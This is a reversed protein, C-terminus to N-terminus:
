YLDPGSLNIVDTLKGIPKLISEKSLAELPGSLLRIPEDYGELTFEVISYRPTGEPNNGPRVVVDVLVSPKIDLKSGSRNLGILKVSLGKRRKLEEQLVQPETGSNILRTFHNNAQSLQYTRIRTM